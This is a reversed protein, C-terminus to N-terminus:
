KLISLISEKIKGFFEESVCIEDYLIEEFQETTLESFAEKQRCVAIGVIEIWAPSINVEKKFIEYKRPFIFTSIGGDVVVVNHPIQDKMLVSIIQGSIKSIQNFLPEKEKVKEFDPVKIVFAKAPYDTTEELIIEIEGKIVCIQPWLYEPM